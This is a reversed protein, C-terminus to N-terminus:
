LLVKQFSIIILQLYPEVPIKPKLLEEQKHLEYMNHLKDKLEYYYNCSLNNKDLFDEISDFM